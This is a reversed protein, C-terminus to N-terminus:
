TGIVICAFIEERQESGFFEGKWERMGPVRKKIGTRIKENNMGPENKKNNKNKKWHKKKDIEKM